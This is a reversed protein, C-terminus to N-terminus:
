LIEFLFLKISKNERVILIGKNENVKCIYILVIFVRM